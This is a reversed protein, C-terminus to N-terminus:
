TFHVFTHFSSLQARLRRILLISFAAICKNLEGFKDYLLSDGFYCLGFMRRMTALLRLAGLGLGGLDGRRDDLRLLGINRLLRCGNRTERGGLLFGLKVTDGLVSEFLM